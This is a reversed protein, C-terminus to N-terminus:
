PHTFMVADPGAIDEPADPDGAAPGHWVSGGFTTVYIKEPDMPDPIVRHGWKFNYGRIRQWTEGRDDSRWASSEFGAAYLVGNRTDITVDYVHQDASHVNRWTYGGDTSLFIGGDMDGSNRNHRGWAALYLRSPDDPDVALGNPGNVGAPLPLRTWTEAGDESRYLAGDGANAYSGDESRRAVILYLVGGSDRALRWAFPEDGEIGNNKLDWTKGGDWSKYVGRGFGTAYLIRGDPASAPDVLIFTAATPAMGDSSKQWTRGGDDSMVIGGNFTSVATRRWMKPRPLDHTRATAAWMRGPVDPDFAVWYTTNSWLGPIGSSSYTWSQGGTESRWLGIDTYSIFVRNSDFPDWHIGYSTTVDLGSSTFGGDELSSSYVATWTLGGDTTRMTRGYDTGYCVNPDGPAVGLSIPNGAWGAGLASTMWADRINAAGRNASQWVLDWTRGRDGSRAVGFWYTGDPLTLNSYSVYVVDGHFLSTAVSAFETRAGPLGADRWTAGADESILIRGAVAYVVPVGDEAFGLAADTFASVGEPASGQRWRGGQRVSVTRNGIVYLTRDDPPSAPDIYIGRAGDFLGASWTWTAGWDTSILLSGDIAANLM